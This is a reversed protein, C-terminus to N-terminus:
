VRERCSARGIQEREGESFLRRVPVSSQPIEKRFRQAQSTIQPARGLASVPNTASPATCRVKRRRAGKEQTRTREGAGPASDAPRDAMDACTSCASERFGASTKGSKM